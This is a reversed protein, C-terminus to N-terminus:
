VRRVASASVWDPAIEVGRSALVTLLVDVCSRARDAGLMSALDQRARAWEDPSLGLLELLQEAVEDPEHAGALDDLCARYAPQLAEDYM